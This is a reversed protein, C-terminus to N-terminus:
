SATATPTVTTTPIASVVTTDQLFLLQFLLYLTQLRLLTATPTVTSMTLEM